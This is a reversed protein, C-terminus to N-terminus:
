KLHCGECKKDPANKGEKNKEKHCNKCNNHFATMLKKVNGESKAANHCESCKKTEDGPNWVNKGDQYVHHCEICEIGYDSSHVAHSIKVPEKKDNAYTKGDIVIEEPFDAATLIGSTILMGACVLMIILFWGKRM